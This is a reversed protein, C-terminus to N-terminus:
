EPLANLLYAAELLTSPMARDGFSSRFVQAVAGTRYLAALARNVELRLDADRRMM